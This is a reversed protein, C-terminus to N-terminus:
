CSAPTIDAQRRIGALIVMVRFRVVVSFGHTGRSCQQLCSVSTKLTFLLQRLCSCAAIESIDSTHSLMYDALYGRHYGINIQM